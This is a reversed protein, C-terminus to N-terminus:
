TRHALGSPSARERPLEQNLWTILTTVVHRANDDNTIEHRVRDRVRRQGSALPLSVGAVTVMCPPPEPAFM